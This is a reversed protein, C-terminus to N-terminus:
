GEQPSFPGVHLHEAADPDYGLHEALVPEAADLVALATPTM